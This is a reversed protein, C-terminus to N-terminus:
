RGDVTNVGFYLCLSKIYKTQALLKPVDSTGGGLGAGTAHDPAMEFASNHLNLYNVAWWEIWVLDCCMSKLSNPVPLLRHLDSTGRIHGGGAAHDPAM